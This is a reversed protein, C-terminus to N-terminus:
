FIASSASCASCASRCASLGLWCPSEREVAIGDAWWGCGRGGSAGAASAGAGAGPGPGAGASSAVLEEWGGSEFGAAVQVEGFSWPPPPGRAPPPHLPLASSRRHTSPELPKCCLAATTVSVYLASDYTTGNFLPAATAPTECWRGTHICPDLLVRSAHRSPDLVRGAGGAHINPTTLYLTTNTQKRHVDPEKKTQM